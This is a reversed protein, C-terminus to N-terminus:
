MKCGIVEFSGGASRKWFSRGLTGARVKRSRDVCLAGPTVVFVVALHFIVTANSKGRELRFVLAQVRGDLSLRRSSSSPARQYVCM